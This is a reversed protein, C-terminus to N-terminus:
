IGRIIGPIDQTSYANIGATHVGRYAQPALARVRRLRLKVAGSARRAHTAAGGGPGPRAGHRRPLEYWADARLTLLAVVAGAAVLVQIDSTVGVRRSATM